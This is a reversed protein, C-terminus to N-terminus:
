QTNQSLCQIAKEIDLKVSRINNNVQSNKYRLVKWGLSKLLEEKKADQYKRARPGHSNGDIEIALRLAPFAVDVKYAPPYDSGAAMKTKVPFNNIAQPFLTLLMREQLTPGTGNGKRIPPRHGITRLQNAAKIRRLEDQEPTLGRMKMVVDSSRDPNDSHWKLKSKSIKDGRTKTYFSARGEPTTTM